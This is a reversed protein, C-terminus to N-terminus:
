GGLFHLVAKQYQIEILSDPKEKEDDFLLKLSEIAKSGDNELLLIDDPNNSEILAGDKLKVSFLQRYSALGLKAMHEQASQIIRRLEQESLFYGWSYSRKIETKM